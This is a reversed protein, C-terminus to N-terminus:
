ITNKRVLVGIHPPEINLSNRKDLVIKPASPVPIMAIAEPEISSPTGEVCDVMFSFMRQIESICCLICLM